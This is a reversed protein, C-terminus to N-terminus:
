EQEKELIKKFMIPNMPEALPIGCSRYFFGIGHFPPNLECRFIWFYYSIKQIV